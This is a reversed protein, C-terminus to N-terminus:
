PCTSLAPSTSSLNQQVVQNREVSFFAELFLPIAPIKFSTFYLSVKIVKINQSFCSPDPAFKSM